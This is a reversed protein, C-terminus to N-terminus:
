VMSGIGFAISGVRLYFSGYRMVSKKIAIKRGHREESIICVLYEFMKFTIHFVM